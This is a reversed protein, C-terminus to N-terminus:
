RTNYVPRILRRNIIVKSQLLITMLSTIYNGRGDDDDNDYNDNNVDTDIDNDDRGNHGQYITMLVIILNINDPSDDKEKEYCQSLIKKENGKKM